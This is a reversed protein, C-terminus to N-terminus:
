RVSRVLAGFDGIVDLGLAHFPQAARVVLGDAAMM